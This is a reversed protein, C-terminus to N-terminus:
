GQSLVAFIFFVAMVFNVVMVVFIAFIVSFTYNLMSIIHKAICLCTDEHEDVHRIHVICNYPKTLKLITTKAVCIWIKWPVWGSIISSWTFYRWILNPVKIVFHVVMHSIREVIFITTLFRTSPGTITVSNKKTSSVSASLSWRHINLLLFTDCLQLVQCTTIQASTFVVPWSYPKVQRFPKGYKM